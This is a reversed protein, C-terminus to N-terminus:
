VRWIEAHEDVRYNRMVWEGGALRDAEARDKHKNSGDHRSPRKGALRLNCCCTM